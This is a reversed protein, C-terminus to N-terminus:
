EHALYVLYPEIRDKGKFNRESRINRNNPFPRFRNILYGEMQHAESKSHCRYLIRIIRVKLGRHKEYGKVRPRFWEESIHGILFRGNSLLYKEVEASCDGKITEFSGKIMPSPLVKIHSNSPNLNKM